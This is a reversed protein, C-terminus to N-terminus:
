CRHIDARSVADPAVSLHNCLHTKLHPVDEDVDRLIAPEGLDRQTRAAREGSQHPLGHDAINLVKHSVWYAQQGNTDKIRKLFQINQQLYTGNHLM